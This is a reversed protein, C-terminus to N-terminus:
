TIRNGRFIVILVGFVVEAQDSRRLLLKTLLIRVVILLLRMLMAARGAALRLDAIVGEIPVFVIILREQTLILRAVRRPLRLLLRIQRAIGLWERRTVLLDLVTWLMVLLLGMGLRVLTTMFASLIDAAKRSENRAAPLWLLVGALIAIVLAVAALISKSVTSASAVPTASITWVARVTLIETTPV